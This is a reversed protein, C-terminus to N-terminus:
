DWRAEETDRVTRVAAVADDTTLGTSVRASDIDALVEDMTPTTAERSLVDLLYANLSQRRAKARATLTVRVRAPLARITLNTTIEEAENM